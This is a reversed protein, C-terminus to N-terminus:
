ESPANVLQVGISVRRREGGSLGRNHEDGVRTDVVHSLGLRDIVTQVQVSVYNASFYCLIVAVNKQNKVM